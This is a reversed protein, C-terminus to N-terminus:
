SHHPNHVCKYIFTVQAYDPVEVDASATIMSILTRDLQIWTDDETTSDESVAHLVQGLLRAAQCLLAFKSMYTTM